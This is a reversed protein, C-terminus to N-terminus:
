LFLRYPQLRDVTALRHLQQVNQRDSVAVALGELLQPPGHAPQEANWKSGQRSGQIRFERKMGLALLIVGRLNQRGHLRQQAVIAPPHQAYGIHIEVNGNQGKYKPLRLDPARTRQNGAVPQPLLKVTKGAIRSHQARAEQLLRYVFDPMRQFQGMALVIATGHRSRVSHLPNVNLLGPKAGLALCSHRPTSYRRCGATKPRRRALSSPLFSTMISVAFSCTRSCLSAGSNWSGSAQRPLGGSFATRTQKAAVLTSAQSHPVLAMTVHSPLLNRM